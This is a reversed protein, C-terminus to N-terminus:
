PTPPATEDFWEVERLCRCLLEARKNVSEQFQKSVVVPYLLCLVRCSTSREPSIYSHEPLMPKAESWCIVRRSEPSAISMEAERVGWNRLIDGSGGPVFRKGIRKHDDLVDRQNPATTQDVMSAGKQWRPL